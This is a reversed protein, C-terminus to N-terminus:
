LVVKNSLIHYVQKINLTFSFLTCTILVFFILDCVTNSLKPLM